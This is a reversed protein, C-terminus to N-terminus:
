RNCIDSSLNSFAELQLAAIFEFGERTHDPGHIWIQELLKEAQGYHQVSTHIEFFRLADGRLGFSKAMELFAPYDINDLLEYACYASWVSNWGIESLVGRDIQSLIWEFFIKNFRDGYDSRTGGTRVKHVINVGVAAAAVAYWHDHSKIDAGDASVGNEECWNQLLVRKYKQHPALGALHGLLGTFNRRLPDFKIFFERKQEMSFTSTVETDFIRLTHQVKRYDSKWGDVYTRLTDLTDHPM